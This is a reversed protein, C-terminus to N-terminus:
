VDFIIRARWSDGERVAELGHYTVGKIERMAEAPAASFRVRASLRTTTLENFHADRFSRGRVQRLFLLERLWDALLLAADDAELRIAVTELLGAEFDPPPGVLAEAGAAARVFLAGLDPAELELGVDATHDLLQVGPPLREPNADTM